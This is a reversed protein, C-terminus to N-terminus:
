RSRSNALFISYRKLVFVCKVWEGHATSDVFNGKGVGFTQGIRLSGFEEFRQEVKRLLVAAIFGDVHQGLMNLFKQVGIIFRRCTGEVILHQVFPANSPGDLCGNLQLAFLLRMQQRLLLLEGDFLLRYAVLHHLAFLHVVTLRTTPIQPAADAFRTWRM